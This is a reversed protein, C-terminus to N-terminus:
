IIPLIQEHSLQTDTPSSPPSHPTSVLALASDLSTRRLTPGGTRSDFGSAAATDAAGLLSTEEPQSAPRCEQGGALDCVLQPCCFNLTLETSLRHHDLLVRGVGLTSIV